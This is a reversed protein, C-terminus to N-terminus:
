SLRSDTVDRIDAVTALLADRASAAAAADLSPAATLREIQAIVNPVFGATEWASGAQLLSLALGTNESIWGFSILQAGEQALKLALGTDSSGPTLSSAAADFKSAADRWSSAWRTYADHTPPVATSVLM